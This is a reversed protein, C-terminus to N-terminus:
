AEICNLYDELPIANGYEDKWADCQALDADGHKGTEHTCWEIYQKGTITPHDMLMCYETTNTGM